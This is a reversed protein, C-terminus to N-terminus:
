RALTRETRAIFRERHVATRIGMAIKGVFVATVTTMILVDVMPVGTTISRFGGSRASWSPLHDRIGLLFLWPMAFGVAFWTNLRLSSKSEHYAVECANCVQDPMPQHELCSRAACRPCATM